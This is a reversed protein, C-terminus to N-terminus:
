SKVLRQVPFTIMASISRHSVHPSSTMNSSGLRHSPPRSGNSKTQERKIAAPVLCFHIGSTGQHQYVLYSASHYLACSGGATPGVIIYMWPLLWVDSLLRASQECPLILAHQHPAWPYSWLDTPSTVYPGKTNGGLSPGFVSISRKESEQVWSM